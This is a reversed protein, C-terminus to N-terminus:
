NQQTKKLTFFVLMCELYLYLGVCSATVGTSIESHSKSELKLLEYDDEDDDM